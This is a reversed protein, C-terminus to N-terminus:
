PVEYLKQISTRATDVPISLGFDFWYSVNYYRLDYELLYNKLLTRLKKQSFSLISKLSTYKRVDDDENNLLTLISKEDLKSFVSIPILKLLEVRIPDAMKMKLLEDCQSKGINYICGAVLKNWNKTSKTSTTALSFTLRKGLIPAIDEWAGMKGFYQIEEVSCDTFGSRQLRRIRELDAVEFKECLVNLADRTLGKRIFNELDVHIKISDDQFGTNRLYYIYDSFCKEFKDDVKERIDQSYERFFRSCMVFYPIMNYISCQEEIATELRKKAYKTFIRRLYRNYHLEGEEDSDTGITLLNSRNNPQVLIKKVERLEFKQGSKLLQETLFSRVDASSDSKLFELEEPNLSHRDALQRLSHIRIRHNRHKLGTRVLDSDIGASSSLVTTLLNEDFLDFQNSYLTSIAVAMSQKSQISVIAELAPLLTKQDGRELEQFIQELDSPLGQQKLYALAAPRNENTSHESLWENVYFSRNIESTDSPLDEGILQMAQIAQSGTTKMFSKLPLIGIKSLPNSDLTKVWHWLPANGNPFYKLGCDVLSSIEALGFEREASSFLINADHVGLIEEDNRPKAISCSLLRFRAVDVTGLESPSEANAIELIENLFSHGELGFPSDAVQLKEKPEILFIEEKPKTQEIESVETEIEKLSILYDTVKKRVRQQFSDPTDFSEFLISKEAILRERFALVKKLDTGPDIMFDQPIDKFYMAIEPAGTRKFNALSIEFEEEFGSTYRGTTDPPTGWKKWM